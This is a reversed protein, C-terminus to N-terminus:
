HHCVLLLFPIAFPQALVQIQCLVIVCTTATKKGERIEVGFSTVGASFGSLEEEQSQGLPMQGIHIHICPM